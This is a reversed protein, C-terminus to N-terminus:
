NHVLNFCADDAFLTTDMNTVKPLDNIFISFLFPGLVSGQPVGCRVPLLSSQQGDVLTFQYRQSLYSKLLTHPLGRVGYRELKHILLSHNVCDFAKSMDHFVACTVLKNELNTIFSQHVSSLATETSM